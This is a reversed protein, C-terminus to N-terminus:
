LKCSSFPKALLRVDHSRVAQKALRGPNAFGFAKPNKDTNETLLGEVQELFSLSAELM